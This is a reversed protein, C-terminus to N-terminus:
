DELATQLVDGREDILRRLYERMFLRDVIRGIPGCPSRFTVTDRMLTGDPREL